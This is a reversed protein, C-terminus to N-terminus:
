ENKQRSAGPSQWSSGPTTLVSRRRARTEAAEEEYTRSRGPNPDAADRSDADHSPRQRLLQSLLLQNSLLLRGKLSLLRSLSLSLLLLESSLLLSELVTRIFDGLRALLNRQVARNGVVSALTALKLLLMPDKDGQCRSLVLLVRQLCRQIRRERM